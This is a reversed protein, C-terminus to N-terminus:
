SDVVDGLPQCSKLFFPSTTIMRIYTRSAIDRRINERTHTHTHTQITALNFFWHEQSWVHESQCDNEM